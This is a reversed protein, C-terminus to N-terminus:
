CELWTMKLLVVQIKNYKIHTRKQNTEREKQIVQMLHGRMSIISM